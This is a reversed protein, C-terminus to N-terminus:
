PASALGLFSKLQTQFNKALEVDSFRLFNKRKIEDRDPSTLTMAKKIAAYMSKADGEPFIRVPDDIVYPIEGSDSGIAISGCAQAEVIIRGFQEKWNLVTRSPVILVDTLAYFAPMDNLNLGGLHLVHAGKARLAECRVLVRDLDNGKGALLLQCSGRLDDSGEWLSLLDFVGKAETMSGCFGVAPGRIKSFDGVLPTKKSLTAKAERLSKEPVFRKSDFWLPFDLM